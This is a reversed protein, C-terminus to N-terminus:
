ANTLMTLLSMVALHALTVVDAHVVLLFRVTFYACHRAMTLKTDLMVVRAELATYRTWAFALYM